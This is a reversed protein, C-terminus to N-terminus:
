QEMVFLPPIHFQGIVSQDDSERRQPKKQPMKLPLRKPGRV